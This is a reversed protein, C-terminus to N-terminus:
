VLNRWKRPDTLFRDDIDFEDFIKEIDSFQDLKELISVNKRIEEPSNVGLITSDIMKNQLAFILAMESPCLENDRSVLDLRNKYRAIGKLEEPLQETSCTIVGKLFTSRSVIDIDRRKIEEFFSEFRRDFINYPVQIFDIVEPYQQIVEKTTDMDYVSVGFLKVLGNKKIEAICDWFVSNFLLYDEAQHLLLLDLREQCLNNLSEEISKLLSQKLPGRWQAVERDIVNLKTAVVFSHQPHTKLYQGIKKESDGYARATDLFTIGSDQCSDLIDGVEEQSKVKTFGYDLGFQVTGLGIRSVELNCRTMRKYIM